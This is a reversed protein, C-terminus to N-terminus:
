IMTDHARIDPIPCALDCELGVGTTFRAFMPREVTLREELEVCALGGFCSSM